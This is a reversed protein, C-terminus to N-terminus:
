FLSEEPQMNKVDGNAYVVRVPLGEKLSKMVMDGTGTGTLGRKPSPFALVHNPRTSILMQSNRIPGAALGYEDWQAEITVLGHYTAAAWERAFRDAGSKNGGNIVTIWGRQEAILGLEHYVAGHDLWDRGGCVLVRPQGPVHDFTQSKADYRYLENHKYDTM